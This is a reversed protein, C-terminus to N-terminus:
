SGSAVQSGLIAVVQAHDTGIHRYALDAQLLRALKRGTYDGGPLDQNVIVLPRTYASKDANRPTVTKFGANRLVGTYLAALGTTHQGDQVQVSANEALLQADAFTGTTLSWIKGWTPDTPVLIDQGDASVAGQVYGGDQNIYKHQTHDGKARGLLLGLQPLAGHPMNTILASNAQSLVSPARLLTGPSLLKKEVADMVAQQSQIRMLDAQAYAHRERAYKLATAGDMTQCGAKLHLPSFGYGQDAPYSDDNIDRPVCITVGGMADVISKFGDFKFVAYYDIPIHLASEVTLQAFQAGQGGLQGLAYGQNIKDHGYRPIAVWLDRPVSLMKVDHSSPDVRMVIMSDSRTQENTRQDIGMVLINLPDHGNWAVTGPQTGLLAGGIPALLAPDEYVAAGAIGALLLLLLLAILLLRLVRRGRGGRPRRPAPEVAAVPYVLTPEDPGGQYYSAPEPLPLSRESAMTTAAERAPFLRDYPLPMGGARNRNYCLPYFV